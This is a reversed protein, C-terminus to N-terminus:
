AAAECDNCRLTEADLAAREGCAICDDVLRPRAAPAGSRPPETALRYEYVSSRPRRRMEIAHGALRLEHVRAGVRLIGADVLELTTHWGGRELIELVRQAQTPRRHSRAISM